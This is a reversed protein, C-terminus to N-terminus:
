EEWPDSFSFEQGLIVAKAGTSLDAAGASGGDGSSTSGGGFYNGFSASGPDNSFFTGALLACSGAAYVETCPRMYPKRERASCASFKKKEIMNEKM